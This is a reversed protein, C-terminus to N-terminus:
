SNLGAAHTVTDVEARTNLRPQITVHASSVPVPSYRCLPPLMGRTGRAGHVHMRCTQVSATDNAGPSVRSRRSIAAAEGPNNIANIDGGSSRNNKRERWVTSRRGTIEYFPAANMSDSRSLAIVGPFKLPAHISRSFRQEDIGALADRSRVESADRV